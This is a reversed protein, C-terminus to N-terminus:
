DAPAGAHAPTQALADRLSANLRLLLKRMVAVLIVKGPKGRQRLRDSFATIEPDFRMAVRAPNFLITKVSARGPVLGRRKDITGSQHVRPALGALAVVEKRDLCGLEPLEALLARATAQGVGIRATLVEQKRRLEPEAAEKSKIAADIAVLEAELHDITRALSALAAAQTATEKRNLEAQLAKTLQRRRTMLASLEVDIIRGLRLGDKVLRDRGFRMLLRADIADSKATIGESTRFAKVRLSHVVSWRVGAAALAEELAREYGGTREFVVLDHEPDLGSVLAAIGAAQNAYREIRSKGEHAVELLHKGVDVGMVRFAKGDMGDEVM